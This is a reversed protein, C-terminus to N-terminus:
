EVSYTSTVRVRVQEYPRPPQRYTTAEILTGNVEVTYTWGVIRSEYYNQCSSGQSYQPQSYNRRNIDNGIVAGTAAGIAIAADRGSGGGVQSGALGGVIGGIVTGSNLNRHERPPAQYRIPECNQRVPTQDYIPQAPGLVRGYEYRTITASQQAFAASAFLTTLLILAKM